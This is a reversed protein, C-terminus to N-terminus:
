EAAVALMTTEPSNFKELLLKQEAMAEKFHREKVHGFGRIKEPIAALAVALTQNQPTLRKSISEILQEYDSILRREMKREATYGFIDFTGGRFRKFPALVGFAKLMWPGFATKVPNGQADKKGFIPPALHFELKV